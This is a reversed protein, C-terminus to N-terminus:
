SNYLLSEKDIENIRKKYYDVLKEIHGEIPNITDRFERLILANSSTYESKFGPKAILIPINKNVINQVMCALETLEYYKGSTANYSTHKMSNEIFHETMKGLDDIYLYDFIANQRITIPYGCLAKCIANSIFRSKYLEYPGFIGFLRFNTINKKTLALMQMTYMLFGYPDEPIIRGFQEETILKIPMTRGYEAGTGFYLMKGFYDSLRTLNQFMRLREAVYVMDGNPVNVMRRDLANLVVDFAHTKIYHEVANGDLVNLEQSSPTYLEYKETFYEALNRGVFGNAGVILVKKMYCESM